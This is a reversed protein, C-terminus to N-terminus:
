ADQFLRTPTSRKAHRNYAEAVATRFRKSYADCFNSFISGSSVEALAACGGGCHLAYRCRQCTPNSAVNRSRWQEGVGNMTVKGDENVSGIKLNQDGTRDWCAYIDGFADFIYMGTHAGCFAAKMDPRNGSDFLKQTRDRMSGDVRGFVKTVRDAVHLQILAESLEWSNFFDSREGAGKSGSYDHVPALYASFNKDHPWGEKVMRHALEPIAEFNKRDVNVRVSVKTQRELAATLNKAIKDFSGSGDAYIRRKDHLQPPGDITIQVSRIGNPGLLDYFAELETANTIATFDADCREQQTRILHEVIPRSAALLPEGGFLTFRRSRPEGLPLGHFQSDVDDFGAMIRDAMEVSMPRLLGKYRVDTRMHDQFCYHCRLNCNYTPMLVYHRAQVTQARHMGDVIKTFLEVEEDHTKQTLYGRRKLLQLTEPSPPAVSASDLEDAEWSGYLPKAVRETELGRVYAAVNRSVKDYTGTYGHLLLWEDRKNPLDVYIVYSSARLKPEASKPSSALEIM